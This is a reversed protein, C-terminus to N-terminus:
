RGPTPRHWFPFHHRSLLVGAALWSLITSPYKDLLLFDVGQGDFVFTLPVLLYLIALGLRQSGSLSLGWLVFILIMAGLLAWILYRLPTDILLQIGADGLVFALPMLGAFIALGM